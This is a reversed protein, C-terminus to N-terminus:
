VGTGEVILVDDIVMVMHGTVGFYFQYKDLKGVGLLEEKLTVTWTVQTYAYAGEETVDTRNLTGVTGGQDGGVVYAALDAAIGSLPNQDRFFCYFATGVPQDIIRYKFTVTYTGGPEFTFQLPNTEGLAFYYSSYDAKEYSAYLSYNGSIVYRPDNTLKGLNNVGRVFNCGLLSGSEFGETIGLGGDYERRVNTVIEIDEGEVVTGPRHEILVLNDILFSGMNKVGIAFSDFGEPVTFTFTKNTLYNDSREYWEGVNQYEQTRSNYLDVLYYGGKGVDTGSKARFDFRLTYTTGAKLKETYYNSYLGYAFGKTSSEILVSRDGSIVNASGNDETDTRNLITGNYGASTFFSENMSILDDYGDRYNEFNQYKGYMKEVYVDSASITGFNEALLVPKYDDYPGVTFTFTKFSEEESVDQWKTYGAAAGAGGKESELKFVYGNHNDFTYDKISMTPKYKVTVQYTAYPSFSYNEFQKWSMKQTVTDETRGGGVRIEGLEYLCTDGVKGAMGLEIRPSEGPKGIGVALSYKGAPVNGIDLKSYVNTIEGQVINKGNFETNCTEAVVEKNENLLYVTLKDDYWFRGVASNSFQTMINITSNAATQKPYRAMDVALRYGLKENGRDFVERYGNEILWAVKENVWDIVTCYNIRLKYLGENIGDLLSYEGSGSIMDDSTGAYEGMLPLRKGSRFVEQMFKQDYEYRLAGAIGDRRFTVNELTYAYDYSNWRYYNRYPDTIGYSDLENPDWSCCLVMLKASEAFAEVYHDIINALAAMKEERSDYVYGTHFEGWNGYGRIEITEIAEEDKYKLYLENLFRDLYKLYTENTVDYARFKPVPGGNGYDFEQYPINYKEILWNPAGTYTNPLMHSDTSIKVHFKKGRPKWYDIVTDLLDFNFVGETEEIRAWTSGLYVVDCDPMEGSAGLDMGGYFVCDENFLWGMGPNNLKGSIKEPYVIAMDAAGSSNCGSAAAAPFALCLAMFLAVLKNGFRNKRM